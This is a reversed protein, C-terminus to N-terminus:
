LPILISQNFFPSDTSIKNKIGRGIAKWISDFAYPYKIESFSSLYQTFEPHESTFLFPLTQSERQNKTSTHSNCAGLFLLLSIITGM